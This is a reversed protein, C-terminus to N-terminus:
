ARAVVERGEFDAMVVDVTVVGKTHEECAEKALECV